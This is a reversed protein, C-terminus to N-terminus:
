LDFKHILGCFRIRLADAALVRVSECIISLTDISKKQNNKSHTCAIATGLCSENNLSIFSIISHYEGAVIM